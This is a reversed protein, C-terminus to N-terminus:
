IKNIKCRNRNCLLILLKFLDNKDASIDTNTLDQKQSTKTNSHLATRSLFGVQSLSWMVM